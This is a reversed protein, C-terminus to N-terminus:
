GELCPVLREGERGLRVKAVPIEQILKFQTILSTTLVYCAEGWGKLETRNQQDPKWRSEKMRTKGWEGIMRKKQHMVSPLPTAYTFSSLKEYMATYLIISWQQPQYLLYYEILDFYRSIGSFLCLNVISSAGGCSESVKMEKDIDLNSYKVTM